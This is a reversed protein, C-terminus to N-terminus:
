TLKRRLFFRLSCTRLKALVLERIEGKLFTLRKVKSDRIVGSIGATIYSQMKFMLENPTTKFLQTLAEEIEPTCVTQPRIVDM